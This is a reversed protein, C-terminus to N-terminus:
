DKDLGRERRPDRNRPKVTYLYCRKIKGSIPHRIKAFVPDKWGGEKKLIVISLLMKQGDMVVIEDGFLRAKLIIKGSREDAIEFEVPEFNVHENHQTFRGM